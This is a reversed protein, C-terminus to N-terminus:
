ECFNFARVISTKEDLSVPEYFTELRLSKAIEKWENLILTAGETFNTPFWELRDNPLKLLHEQTVKAIEEELLEAEEMVQDSLENCSELKKLSGSAKKMEMNFRFRELNARMTLLTSITIQRRAGSQSAIDVALEADKTCSNLIFMTYTGWQRQQEEPYQQKREAAAKRFNNALSILMFRIRLTIWIAEVVFRRDAQPQPQGVRIRAVRMANEEPHAPLRSPNEGYVMLEQDYLYSFAGEWATIHPSRVKTADVARTYIHTLRSTIRKWKTSVDNSIHFLKQNSPLLDNMGLPGKQNRLVSARQRLMSKRKKDALPLTDFSAKEASQILQAELHSQSVGNLETQVTDLRQTMDSIVNRELIDLNARKFVRGYRPSTIASRCTPCVPPSAIGDRDPSKLGSWVESGDQTTRKTYYDNMHCIGDLTEVTFVHLCTPLTILRNDLTNEDVCIDELTLYLVLDVV